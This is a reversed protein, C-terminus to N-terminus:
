VEQGEKANKFLHVTCHVCMFVYMCEVNLVFEVFICIYMSYNPDVTTVLQAAGTLAPLVPRGEFSEFYYFDHMQWYELRRGRLDHPQINHPFSCLPKNRLTYICFLTHQVSFGMETKGSFSNLPNLGMKWM